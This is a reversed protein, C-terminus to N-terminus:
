LLTGTLTQTQLDGSPSSPTHTSLLCTFSLAPEWSTELHSPLYPNWERCIGRLRLYLYFQVKALPPLGRPSPHLESYGHQLVPLSVVPLCLFLSVGSPSYVRPIHFPLRPIWLRCLRPLLCSVQQACLPETTLLLWLKMVSTHGACTEMGKHRCM